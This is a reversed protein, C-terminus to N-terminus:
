LELTKNYDKYKKNVLIRFKMIKYKGNNCKNRLNEIVVSCFAHSVRFSTVVPHM